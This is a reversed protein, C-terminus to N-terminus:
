REGESILCQDRLSREADRVLAECISEFARGFPCQFKFRFSSSFGFGAPRWGASCRSGGSDQRRGGKISTRTAEGGDAAAVAM